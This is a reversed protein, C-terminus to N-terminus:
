FVISFIMCVLAVVNLFTYNINLTNFTILVQINFSANLIATLEENEPKTVIYSVSCQVYNLELTKRM